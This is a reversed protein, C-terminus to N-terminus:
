TWLHRPAGSGNQTSMHLFISFIDRLSVNLRKIGFGSYEPSNIWDWATAAWMAMVDTAIINFTGWIALNMPGVHLGGPDQRGWTPGINAGYVKSDPPLIFSDNRVIEVPRTIDTKLVILFHM